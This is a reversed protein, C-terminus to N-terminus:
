YSRGRGDIIWIDVITDVEFVHVVDYLNFTLDCYPVITKALQGEDVTTNKDPESLAGHEDRM